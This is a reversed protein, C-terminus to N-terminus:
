LKKRMLVHYFAHLDQQEEEIALLDFAGGFITKFDGKRFFRDYHGRHVLWNRSRREDPTHRFRTSFCCLLFHGGSKLLALLNQLYYKEDQKRVHHFCGYDLIVDFTNPAFPLHFADGIVFRLHPSIARNIQIARTIAQPQDDLAITEHGRNAFLIAHRGEGCGIDLVRAGNKQYKRVFRAVPESPDSVPWGHEGTRYAEEFFKKQAPYISM